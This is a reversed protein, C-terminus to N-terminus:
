NNDVISRQSPGTNSIALDPTDDDDIGSVINTHIETESSGIPFLDEM